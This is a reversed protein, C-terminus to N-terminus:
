RSEIPPNPLLLFFHASLGIVEMAWPLARPSFTQQTQRATLAVRNLWLYNGKCPANIKQIRKDLANGQAISTMPSEAWKKKSKGLGEISLVNYIFIFEDM